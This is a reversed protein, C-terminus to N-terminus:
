ARTATISVTIASISAPMRRCPISGGSGISSSQVPSLLVPSASSFLPKATAASWPSYMPLGTPPSRFKMALPFRVFPVM